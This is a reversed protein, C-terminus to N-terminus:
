WTPVPNWWPRSFIMAINYPYGASMEVGSGIPFLFSPPIFFWGNKQPKNALFWLCPIHYKIVLIKNGWRVQGFTPSFMPSRWGFSGHFWFSFFNHRGFNQGVQGARMPCAIEHLFLSWSPFIPQPNLGWRRGLFLVMGYHQDINTMNEAVFCIITIIM